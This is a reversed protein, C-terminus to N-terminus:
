ARPFVRFSVVHVRPAGNTAEVVLRLRGTTVAQDLKVVRKRRRNGRVEVLTTWGGGIRAEIRFDRVLTPLIREPTYHHHLNILDEHVDDDFIIEVAGVVVPRQWTLQLWPRDDRSLPESVWMQPGGYPRAYGGVVMQPTYASTDSDLRFCATERGLTNRWELLPQPYDAEPPETRTFCLVGPTRGTETHVTVAPNARVVVFANRPTSPHWPLDFRVWEDACPQVTTTSAILTHPVYNQPKATDYIDVTVETQEDADLLLDIGSLAPDVPVILGLDAELLHRGDPEDVTLRAMTSSASAMASRALDTPDTNALGLVAADHRLLTQRLEEVHNQALSRPNVQKDVCLAAATGAAEGVVACTAMVRTSGFAVHSASINRGAFFLNSVNASYLCRLPIHYSGDIHWKKAGPETAYMGGPPHLDISWGGFGVADSFDYQGVVDQQTLTYDGIFRRYERKGPVAGVWELTLNEADDFRGSNKIYDWVGYIAAWLEDRIAENDHVTDLEGGFEIWWYFCGNSGTRIIRQEPIPTATIDRAFSPPVYPVPHGVDKTYFLITSGLTLDDAVDPAWLEGYESRAERGIRYRAGALCGVLGDGTCDLFMSGRFTTLRESGMTWGVVADISRADEPGSAVVERVDTNLFLQINPESRVAELVVLDWYYPNGDPNRYQNEVLLEGIIGTERAYRHKGHATAGVVWVRVESSSNGGLVPRNTILVVSRGMRAAAVAACVGALGGGVVVVDTSIEDVHVTDGLAM